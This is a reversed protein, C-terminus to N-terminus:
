APEAVCIQNLSGPGLPNRAFDGYRTRLRLDAAGLLLPMEQPFFQRLAFDAVIPAAAGPPQLRWRAFRIQAVPDYSATEEAEIASAPNPGANLRRPEAAGALQHLDPLAVDFAFTGGPALHRRVARLCAFLDESAVLHALSNCSLVVLGFQRGLDFSRMDGLRLALRLGEEAAKRQAAALMAPSADLGTVDHGDRALPLTLRGTGCALELVPGIGQRAEARYFEECPGPLVVADYLAADDYLSSGAGDGSVALSM